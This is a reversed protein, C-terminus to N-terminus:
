KSEELLMKLEEILKALKKLLRLDWILDIMLVTALGIAIWTCADNM